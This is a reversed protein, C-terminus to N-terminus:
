ICGPNYKVHLIEKVVERIYSKEQFFVLGVAKRVETDKCLIFLVKGHEQWRGDICIWPVCFPSRHSFQCVWHLCLFRSHLRTITEPSFSSGTHFTRLKEMYSGSWHPRLVRSEFPSGFPPMCHELQLVLTCGPCHVQSVDHLFDIVWISNSGQSSVWEM